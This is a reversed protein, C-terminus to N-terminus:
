YLVTYVKRLVNCLEIAHTMERFIYYYQVRMAIEQVICDPKAANSVEGM